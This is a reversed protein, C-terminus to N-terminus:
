FLKRGDLLGPHAVVYIVLLLLMLSADMAIFLNQDAYAGPKEPSFSLLEVARYTSRALVLLNSALLAGQLWTIRQPGQVMSPTQDTMLPQSGKEAESITGSPSSSSSKSPMACRKFFRLWALLNVTKMAPRNRSCRLYFEAFFISFIVTVVIQAIVGVAMVHLGNRMGEDTEATGVMGGGICQILLCIFDAFTFVKSFSSATISSYQSRGLLIYNAASFFTPAIILCVIQMIFGQDDSSWSGGNTPDWFLTKASWYRGGWGISELMSGICLTYLTWWKRWYIGLLIHLVTVLSFTALFVYTSTKNVLYDYNAAEINGSFLNPSGIQNNCTANTCANM